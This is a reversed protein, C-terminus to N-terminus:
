SFSLWPYRSSPLQSSNPHWYNLINVHHQNTIKNYDDWNLFVTHYTRGGRSQETQTTVISLTGHYGKEVAAQQTDGSHLLARWVRQLVFPTAHLHKTSSSAPIRYNQQSLWLRCWCQTLILFSSEQLTSVSFTCMSVSFSSMVYVSSVHCVCLLRPMCLPSTVYVSSVHCVCLFHSVCLPSTVYVSSVHCVCLLRSM